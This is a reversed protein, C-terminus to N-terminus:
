AATWGSSAPAIRSRLSAAMAGSRRRRRRRRWGRSRGGGPPPRRRRRGGRCAAPGPAIVARGAVAGAGVDARGARGAARRHRLVRGGRGHGRRHRGRESLFWRHELVEHFVEVPDLKDPWSPRSAGSWRTTSRRWGGTPRWSTPSRGARRRGGALGPVVGPRQAAPPGPEGPRGPRHAPPAAVPPPGPERVRTTVRLRARGRRRPSWSSRTSTSAWNTSGSSGNACGSASRVRRGRGVRRHARGVPGPLPRGPRRGPRVPRARRRAPRQGGPRVARRGPARVGPRPGAIRQGDTLAPHLESTEADVLYAALAGADLRFLTNSLSCDGWFFGSLHLRVLLEVLADILLAAAHLGRPESFLARYTTSYELYRTVLAADIDPGRDVAVGLVTM